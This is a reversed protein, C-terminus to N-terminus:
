ISVKESDVKSDFFISGLKDFIKKNGTTFFKLGGEKALNKEIEIHRKLYDEFKKAVIPAEDIVCINKSYKEITEKLIGYHTCGLILTDSDTKLVEEVYFKIIQESEKTIYKGSEVMPVLLPAQLSNVLISSNLKNIEKKFTGSNVTAETALVAIKNNRTKLVAEEATPIIVGLVKKQPYYKPLYEQQIQRLAEASASNCALVVISAGEDFLFKIGEKTYQFIEKHTRAGYPARLSDGLYLYNYEPLKEVIKKLITLGGFGSDFVGIKGKM